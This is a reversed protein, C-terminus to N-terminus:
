MVFLTILQQVTLLKGFCDFEVSQWKAYLLNDFYISLNRDVSTCIFSFAMHSSLYQSDGIIHVEVKTGRPAVALATRKFLNCCDNALLLISDARSHLDSDYDILEQYLEQYEAKMAESRSKVSDYASHFGNLWELQSNRHEEAALANGHLVVPVHEAEKAKKERAKDSKALKTKVGKIADAILPQLASSLKLTDDLLSFIQRIIRTKDFIQRQKLEHELDDKIVRHRNLHIELQNKSKAVGMYSLSRKLYAVTVDDLGKDSEDTQHGHELVGGMSKVIEAKQKKALAAIEDLRTPNLGFTVNAKKRGQISKGLTRTNPGWLASSHEGTVSKSQNMSQEVDDNDDDMNGFGRGLIHRTASAYKSYLEEWWNFIPKPCAYHAAM